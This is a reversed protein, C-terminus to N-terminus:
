GTANIPKEAGKMFCYEACKLYKAEQGAFERNTRIEEKVLDLLSGDKLGGLTFAVQQVTQWRQGTQAAGLMKLQSRVLNNINAVIASSKVVPEEQATEKRKFCAVKLPQPNERVLMNADYSVYRLNEAKKGKSTDAKIGHQELVDFCHEAYDSLKDAEAILALAYFGDGSCSLGCFGIFPLSFVAAKLEEIDFECISNYDFDLQMIGTREIEKVMGKKKTELLAAPTYCQLSSKLEQKKVKYNADSKDLARLEVITNIDKGFESFLIDKYTAPRGFNDSHNKYLSVRKDLWTM